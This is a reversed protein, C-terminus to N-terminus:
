PSGVHVAEVILEWAGVDDRRTIDIVRWTTAGHVIRDGKSPSTVDSQRVEWSIMRLTAGEGPFGPAPMDSKVAAIEKQAGVAPVWQVPVAFAAHINAAHADWDIM